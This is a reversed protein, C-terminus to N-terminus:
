TAVQLQMLLSYSFDLPISQRIKEWVQVKRPTKEIYWENEGSLVTFSHHTSFMIKKAETNGHFSVSPGMSPNKVTNENIEGYRLAFRRHAPGSAKKFNKPWNRPRQNGMRCTNKTSSCLPPNKLAQAM